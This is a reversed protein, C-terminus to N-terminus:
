WLGQSFVIANERSVVGFVGKALWLESFRSPVCHRQQVQLTFRLASKAAVVVSEFDPPKQDFRFGNRAVWLQHRIIGLLCPFVPPLKVTRDYGVLIQGTSPYAAQPNARKVWSQYWALLKMALQCQCFIHEITEPEGCHCLPPVDMGMKRLRDATPLISHAVSWSTDRVPRIFRWLQLNHWVSSWDVTIGRDRYKGVCRHESKDLHSLYRYAVSATLDGLSCSSTGPGQILIHGNELRRSFRFWTRMVSRYFPPLLNMDFQCPTPLLLIQELKRGAFAVRLSRQFFWICPHDPNDLLRRVWMVHLSGVKRTVDVVGLGGQSIRQTVSTRALWERKKQWVFSFVQANIRKVEVDPLCLFSALYWFKSLGLSNVILARGHLSLKRAKWAMLVSELQTLQKDWSEHHEVNCLQSGMITIQSSSWNLAVPLDNRSSWKGVLLGHSKAVNLKAGSAREYRQFIQFVATLAVDSRIVISTDDAYQCIKVCRKGPLTFGDIRNDARIKCALTEAMLVYLLPSLPCGQRVGRTVRFSDSKEGNILISSFIDAYFLSVWKCLSEGFNMSHLVRQLYAWDVRDFAKEQDLSLIAGGLRNKNLDHVIDKLLRINVIPNRGRINCTQNEHILSPLVHLVRNSIAKAAIKYDVCLLTIPRWNKMDLRDGKKYLLTIMGSRQTASLRGSSYCANMVDVYDQGILPWFRQYFEAPFGDVGPSKGRGMGDLAAKCEALSLEGECLQREEGTLQREITSLFFDQESMILEQASFLAGYFAVWARAIQISSTVVQGAITRIASFLRQEGQRKELNFFYETSAEGEEAWQVKSRLRAGRTRQKHATELENKTDSILSQVDEGREARRHLFFLTRELSSVRKRFECAKRRSFACIKRKLRAKGADWWASLNFFSAKEAQWAEWFQTVMLIFTLDKMHDINFKWVGPGRHLSTPLALKIYVYSHDSRFFPFIDVSLVLPLFFSCLWFMDLRSAQTQSPRHWTFAKEDPHQKRWVDQLGYTSTLDSLTRSWNYAWKSSPNCGTRDLRPDVVTNFDGCLICPIAPDLVPYLSQFFPDGEKANNPGYVNCIQFIQNEFAFQANIFRGQQDM